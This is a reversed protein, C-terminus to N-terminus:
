NQYSPCILDFPPIKVTFSTKTHLNLMQYHGSMKGLGSILPCGSTYTFANGPEIVPQLGVVGMGNVHEVRGMSDFIRWSRSILQAPQSSLNKITIQYSFFYQYPAQVQYDNLLETIVEIYFGNSIGESM